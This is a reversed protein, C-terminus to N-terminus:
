SPLAAIQEIIERFLPAATENGSGGNEIFVTVAYQPLYVPFFGTMWAHCYETGDPSFQGTQATSTKGAARVNSPKGKSKKSKELVATMMKRLQFATQHSLVRVPVPPEDALLQSGDTTLGGIMYPPTYIGDNGICATMAAIQLPTALLKGQGFSMNAREAEIELEQESPLYGAASYLGNAIEAATGFGLKEATEHMSAPSMLRSLSIFYPNCSQILAGQMDLLGHGNLNHCRFRQGYFSIDGTCDYLYKETFGHELANAATVLKFVSGVSYASLARNLFPADPQGLADALRDPDYVPTSACAAIAGTECELVVAAGAYPAANALADEAIRQIRADLTTVIGGGATGTVTCSSEAGSLVTGNADVSFTVDASTSCNELWPAYAKELGAAAKGNQIYGLLHQAPLVGAKKETGNLVILDQTSDAPANLRCLFPKRKQLATMVATRDDIGAFISAVAAPTPNVVAYLVPESQNLPTFHRDYIVGGSLQIHLHYQGQRVGAQAAQDGRSLGYLRFAIGLLCIFLLSELFLLRVPNNRM